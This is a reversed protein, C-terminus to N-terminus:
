RIGATHPARRRARLADPRPSTDSRVHVEPRNTIASITLAMAFFWTPVAVSRCTSCRQEARAHMDWATTCLTRAPGREPAPSCGTAHKDRDESRAQSARGYPGLCLAARHACRRAGQHISFARTTWVCVARRRASRVIQGMSFAGCMAGSIRSERLGIPRYGAGSM